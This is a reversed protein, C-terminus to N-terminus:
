DAVRALVGIRRSQCIRWRREPAVLHNAIVAFVVPNFPFGVHSAVVAMNTVYRPDGECRAIGKGVIGDSESYLTLVPVRLEGGSYTYDVWRRLAEESEGGPPQQNVRSMVSYLATGRPDGFPTGLTIVQRIWQPYRHALAVAYLGGLSWGILTLKQGSTMFEHAIRDAIREEIQARHQMFEDISSASAESANRGFGWPIARYGRENLFSRLMATSGDAGMFGPITMVTHGDGSPLTRFVRKCLASAGAELAVRGLETISHRLRPPRLDPVFRTAVTSM